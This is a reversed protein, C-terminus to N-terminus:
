PAQRRPPKLTVFHTTGDIHWRLWITVVPLIRGNPGLLGDEVCYFAGYENDGEPFAEHAAAHGQIAQLLLDPNTQDFGAQALFKSKDDRLRPVLLYRTLKEMPIDTVPPIKM